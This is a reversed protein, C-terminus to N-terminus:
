FKASIFSAPVNYKFQMCYTKKPSGLINNIQDATTIYHPTEKEAGCPISATHIRCLLYNKTLWPLSPDVNNNTKASLQKYFLVGTTRTSLSHVGTYLLYNKTTLTSKARCSWQCALLNTLNITGCSISM